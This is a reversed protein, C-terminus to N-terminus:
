SRKVNTQSIMEVLDMDRKVETLMMSNVDEPNKVEFSGEDIACDSSVEKLISEISCDDSFMKLEYNFELNKNFNYNQDLGDSGYFDTDDPHPTPPETMMTTNTTAFQIPSNALRNKQYDSVMSYSTLSKFRNGHYDALKSNTSLSKIYNQLLTSKSGKTRSGRKTYQKRKTANWHNKISNETRGPLRKAIEAWKNGLEAHTQILVIDEEETWTEKQLSPIHTSDDIM